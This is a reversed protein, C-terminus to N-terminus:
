STKNQLMLERLSRIEERLLDVQEYTSEKTEKTANASIGILISLLLFVAIVIFTMLFPLILPTKDMLPRAIDSWADLTMVQFLTFMSIWLDGFNKTDHEAFLKSGMVGFVFLVVLLVGLVAGFDPYSRIIGEIVRRFSPVSSILRFARLIRLARLASVNGLFPLATVIVIFLDFINWSKKFFSLRYALIKLIIEISFFVIFFIDIVHFIKAYSKLLAPFTEMSLVISNIVVLILLLNEFKKSEFVKKLNEMKNGKTFINDMSAYYSIFCFCSL